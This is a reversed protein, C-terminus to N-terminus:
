REVRGQEREMLRWWERSGLTRGGAGTTRLTCRGTHVMGCYCVDWTKVSTTSCIPHHNYLRFLMSEKWETNEVSTSDCILVHHNFSDICFSFVNQYSTGLNFDFRKPHPSSFIVWADLWRASDTAPLVMEIYIQTWPPVVLGTSSWGAMATRPDKTLCSIEGLRSTGM